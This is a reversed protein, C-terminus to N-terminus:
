VVTCAVGAIRDKRDTTVVERVKKEGDGLGSPLSGQMMQEVLARQEPSMRALQEQLEKLAPNVVKAVRDITERDLVAYTKEAPDLAYLADDKFLMVAILKGAEYREMRLRGDDARLVNTGAQTGAAPDREVTELVVGATAQTTFATAIVTILIRHM